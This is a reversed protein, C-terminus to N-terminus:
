ASEEFQLKMLLFLPATHSVFLTGLPANCNRNTTVAPYSPFHIQAFFTRGESQFFPTMYSEPRWIVSMACSPQEGQSSEMQDHNM